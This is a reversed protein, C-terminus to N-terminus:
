KLETEHEKCWNLAFFNNYFRKAWFSDPVQYRYVKRKGGEIILFRAIENARDEENSILFCEKKQKM